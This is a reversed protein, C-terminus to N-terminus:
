LPVNSSTVVMTGLINIQADDFKISDCYAFFRFEASYLQIAIAVNGSDYVANACVIMQPCCLFGSFVENNDLTAIIPSKGAVAGNTSDFYADWRVHRYPLNPRVKLTGAVGVFSSPSVVTETHIQTPNPTELERFTKPFEKLLRTQETLLAIIKESDSMKFVKECSVLRTALCGFRWDVM